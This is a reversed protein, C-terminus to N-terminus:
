HAAQIALDIRANTIDLNINLRKVVTRMEDPKLEGHELKTMTNRTYLMKPM